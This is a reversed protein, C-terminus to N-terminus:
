FPLDDDGVNPMQGFGPIESPADAESDTEAKNTKSECFEFTNVFVQMGYHTIGGNDTFNNNRMEGELLLKTGKKVNCKQLTEATKGFAACQFFDADAEGEKKFRRNVAFNFRAVSKGDATTRIDLDNCLRGSIIFRNM